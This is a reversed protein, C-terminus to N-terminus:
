KKSFWYLLGGRHRGKKKGGSSSCHSDTTSVETVVTATTHDDDDDEEEEGLLSSTKKGAPPPPYPLWQRLLESLLMQGGISSCGGDKNTINLIRAASQEIGIAKVMKDLKSRDRNMAARCFQQIPSFVFQCVSRELIISDAGGRRRVITTTTWSRRSPDFYWDGWLKEKMKHVPIDFKRAYLICFREIEFGWGDKCNGFFVIPPICSCSSEDLSNNNNNYKQNFKDIFLCMRQYTSEVSSTQLLAKDLDDLFLGGPKSSSSQPGKKPLLLENIDDEDGVLSVILLDDEQTKGDQNFLKEMAM